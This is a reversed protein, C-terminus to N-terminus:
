TVLGGKELQLFKDICAPLEQRYHSVYILTKDFAECLATVLSRFYATQEEDLGQSPEDLILMPPNKILARALLVMRQQGTSLQALRRGRLEQLSLLQMWLLTTEEQQATLPRFLGITDFLGSAIVDFCNTGTDFYLHLEPSVFGIKRKIDWITEGTGRRRDFLWIENAYAQPNDATILSLLTSKGAGNPGSVNWREGKRVEWNIHNLITAEGYKITTDVMKVAVSFDDGATADDQAAQRLRTLIATNLQAMTNSHTSHHFGARPGCFSWHGKELQGIHTICDPIERSSTILLIQMGEAALRNIIGHLTARGETDLGLFPNDLILCEPDELLAIALQVRKNEGNSLQILPKNLLPRIHLSDLWSETSKPRTGDALGPGEPRGPGAAPSGEAAETGEGEWGAYEALEQAVTITKDADSANFRQQYYLETVGAQSRFKHQQEVMAIRYEGSAGGAVADFHYEMQGAYFHRGMLTHALVTKGSGSEGTVAWQEGRRITWDLGDLLRAGGIQVTVGKLTMFINAM